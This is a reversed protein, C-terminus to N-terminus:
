ADGKGEIVESLVCGRLFIGRSPNIIDSRPWLGIVHHFLMERIFTNQQKNVVYPSNVMSNFNQLNELNILSRASTCGLFSSFIPAWLGTTPKPSLQRAPHKAFTSTTSLTEMFHQQQM